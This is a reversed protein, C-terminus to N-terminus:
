AVVGEARGFGAREMSGWGDIGRFYSVIGRFRYYTLIHRFFLNEAVCLILLQLLDSTRPYRRFTLEELAVAIVSLVMGVVIAMLLFIAAFYPSAVGSVLALTLVVYGVAEIFPGLMELVFFYPFAIMGIRGYRRNFLVARHKVMTDILGRQWRDRQNGLVRLKEPVETWAVPDPVFSIRYPINNEMCYRHLRITIEVDEGIRRASYGGVKVVLDRRFVGFAGSILLMIRLADWGVRGALFARFYEIVQFKALPAGPLRVREVSGNGVKCGNAVRIIGGSAITTEDELFPRVARILADRELICDADTACFLHTRCYNIGANIADARRGNEKDIVWLNPHIRSQYVSRVPATEIDALPFRPAPILQFQEALIELTRDTSGDNVILVEHEPYNLSLLSRVAELCGAEENYSPVIITVPPAGATSVLDDVDISSLRRAYRRLARFSFVSAMLYYGNLLVFYAFAIAHFVALLVLLLASM